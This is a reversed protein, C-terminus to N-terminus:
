SNFDFLGNPIRSFSHASRTISVSSASSGSSAAMAAEQAQSEVAAGIEEVTIPERRAYYQFLIKTMTDAGGRRQNAIGEYVLDAAVPLGDQIQLGREGVAFRLLLGDKLGGGGRRTAVGEGSGDDGTGDVGGAAASASELFQAPLRALAIPAPDGTVVDGTSGRLSLVVRQTDTGDPNEDLFFDSTAPDKWMVCLPTVGLEYNGDKALFQIGDRTFPVPASYAALLGSADCNHTPPVAFRHRNDPGTGTAAECEATEPDGLKSYLWSLRMEATCDYMSMGNWAMCDMVYYVGDSQHFVCDLICFSDEAKGHKSRRSGGPLASPFKHLVRGSKLRSVTYGRSSIVLTRQGKPRPTAFWAHGLDPPVDVMWEPLMFQSEGFQAVSERSWKGPASSSRRHSPSREFHSERRSTQVPQTNTLDSTGPPENGLEIPNSTSRHMADMTVLDGVAGVRDRTIGADSGVADGAGFALSRAHETLDRRADRQRQRAADRRTM